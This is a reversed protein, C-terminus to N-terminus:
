ISYKDAPAFFIVIWDGNDDYDANCTGKHYKKPIIAPFIEVLKKVMRVDWVSILEKGADHWEKLIDDAKMTRAGLVSAALALYLGKYDGHQDRDCKYEWEVRAKQKLTEFKQILM